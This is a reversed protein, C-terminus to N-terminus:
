SGFKEHIRRVTNLTRMTHALGGLAAELHRTEITSDSLRGRRLWFVERGVSLFRDDPTELSALSAKVQDGPEGDLFVVHPKFGEEEASSVTEHTTLAELDKLRRLHVAVEYGLAGELHDGIRREQTPFDPGDAPGNPASKTEPAGEAGGEGLDFVVNGSARFTAVGDWGLDEFHGRLTDMELRRNGLNIGRLFAVCRM